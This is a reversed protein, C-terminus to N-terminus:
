SNTQEMFCSGFEWSHREAGCRSCKWMNPGDFAQIVHEVECGKRRCVFTNIIRNTMKTSGGHTYSGAMRLAITFLSM